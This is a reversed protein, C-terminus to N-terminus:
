PQDDEDGYADRLDNIADQKTPGTGVRMQGNDNPEDGDYWASWDLARTPIPPNDFSTLIVRRSM